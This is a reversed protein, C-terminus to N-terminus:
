KFFFQATAQCDSDVRLRMWHASFAEPLARHTYGSADVEITRYTQWAGDGLPDVALPFTV